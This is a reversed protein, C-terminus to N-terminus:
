LCSGHSGENSVCPFYCWCFKPQKGNVFVKWFIRKSLLHFVAKWTTLKLPVYGPAISRRFLCGEQKVPRSIWVSMQTGNRWLLRQYRNWSEVATKQCLPLQKTCITFAVWPYFKDTKFKAWWEGVGYVHWNTFQDKKVTWNLTHKSVEYM